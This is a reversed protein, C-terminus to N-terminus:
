EKTVLNLEFTFSPSTGGTAWVARVYKGFNTLSLAEPKNVATQQAFADGTDYWDTGDPSTQFKIDLTPSTGSAATVDLLAVAERYKGVDESDSNGDATEAASAHLEIVATEKVRKPDSIDLVSM